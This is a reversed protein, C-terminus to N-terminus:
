RPRAFVQTWSRGELGLGIQTVGPHMLNRCHGPSALWASMVAEPSTYGQAVNEALRAWDYGEREVRDGLRSGDSGTHGMFGNEHMDASHAQAAANLREDFRLPHTAGFSTAGCTRSASRADNVLTLITVLESQMPPAGGDGPTSPGSCAALVACVVVAVRRVRRPLQM